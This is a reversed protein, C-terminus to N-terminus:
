LQRMKHNSGSDYMLLIRQDGANVEKRPIDSSTYKLLILM